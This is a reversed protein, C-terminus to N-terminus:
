ALLPADGGVQMWDVLMAADRRLAAAVDSSLAGQQVLEATVRDCSRPLLDAALLLPPQLAM